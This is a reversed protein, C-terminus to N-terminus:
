ADSSISLSVQDGTSGGATYTANDYGQSATVNVGPAQNLLYRRGLFGAVGAVALIAVVGLVIGAVGGSSLGSSGAYLTSM